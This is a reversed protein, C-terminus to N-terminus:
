NAQIMKRTATNTATELKYYLLGAEKSPFLQGDLVITNYGQAFDGKQTHVLKGTVDFVTLTAQAVEPLHFGILTSNVFPNPQNQYLEFGLGSITSVGGNSFHLAVEKVATAKAFATAGPVLVYAEAKTIQSSLSLMQSLAGAKTATFRVTFEQAGDVSATLAGDEKASTGASLFVGFNEASVKAGGAIETVTLGSLNLTFQYGQTAEATSFNVEFSEGAKVQRDEVDLLLTGTTRDEAAQQANAIASQNVDGVKVAVFNQYMQSGQISAVTKNEPFATQFPNNQDPFSFSKDVFRWSTNNPLEQYIGLIMKRLEVIDFTTISGSKNADAAIMEYSSGLPELGLIHRSILVLDYTSVGNLPNDDKTPTVLLNSNVPIANSFSYSGNQESVSFMSYTPIADGSGAVDVKAEHLGIGTETKIAGAVTANTCNGPLNEQCNMWYNNLNDLAESLLDGFDPPFAGAGALYENALNLLGLLNSHDSDLKALVIPDVLCPPLSGLQRMGLNRDNFELNYWINLQLTMVSAVLENKLTGDGNLLPSSELCNNATGFTFSGQDLQDTNGHAQLMATLCDANTVTMTKGFKGATVGGHQAMIQGMMAAMSVGNMTALKNGWMNQPATCLPKCNGTAVFTVTFKPGFNGCFDKASVSYTVSNLGNQAVVKGICIIDTCSDNMYPALIATIDALGPLDDVCVVEITDPGNYTPAIKDVIQFTVDCSSTMNGCEDTAMYWYSVTMPWYPCGTGTVLTTVTIKTSGCNDSAIISALDPGPVDLVCSLQGGPPCVLIVPPTTDVVAFTARVYNTNGCEDTARFEYSRIFTNGCGPKEGLFLTATTVSGCADNVEANGFNNLWDHLEAEGNCDPMCEVELNQPLVTFVPPTFDVVTFSVDRFSTNGCEDTALFRLNRRFTGGCGNTSFPLDVITITVDSCDFVNAGGFDDLYNQLSDLNNTSDCELIVDVPDITFQPPTVDIVTIVQSVSSSNGCADTARFTRTLTYLVPCVGATQVEGLFTVTVNGACNDTAM